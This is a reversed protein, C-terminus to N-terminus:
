SILPYIHTSLPFVSDEATYVADFVGWGTELKKRTRCDVCILVLQWSITEDSPSV